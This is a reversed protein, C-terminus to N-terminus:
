YKTPCAQEHTSHASQTHNYKHALMCPALCLDWFSHASSRAEDHTGTQWVQDSTFVKELMSDLMISYMLHLFASM